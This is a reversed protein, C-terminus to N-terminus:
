DNRRSVPAFMSESKENLISRSWFFKQGWGCLGPTRWGECVPAIRRLPEAPPISLTPGIRVKTLMCALYVRLIASAIAIRQM